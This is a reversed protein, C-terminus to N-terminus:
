AHLALRGLSLTDLRYKSLAFVLMCKISNYTVVIRNHEIM